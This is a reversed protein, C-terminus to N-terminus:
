SSSGAAFPMDAGKSWADAVPDYVQVEGESGGALGGFLYLKGAIVEAAHHHGLNPRAAATSWADARLDYVLTAPDTEGVLYLKDGIVGGAVEGLAVPAPAATEWSGSFLLRPELTEPLRQPSPKM